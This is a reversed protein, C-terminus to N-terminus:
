PMDEEDDDFDEEEEVDEETLAGHLSLTREVARELDRFSQSDCLMANTVCFNYFVEDVDEGLPALRAFQQIADTLCYHRTVRLVKNATDESLSPFRQRWRRLMMESASPGRKQVIRLLLLDYIQRADRNERAQLELLYETDEQELKVQSRAYGLIRRVAEEAEDRNM